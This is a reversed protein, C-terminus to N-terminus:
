TEHIDKSEWSLSDLLVQETLNLEKITRERLVKMYIHGNDGLQLRKNFEPNMLCTKMRMDIYQEVLKAADSNAM